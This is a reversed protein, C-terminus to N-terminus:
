GFNVLRNHAAACALAPPCAGAPMRLCLAAVHGAEATKATLRDVCDGEQPDTSTHFKEKEREVGGLHDGLRASRSAQARVFREFQGVVRGPLRCEEVAQDSSVHLGRVDAVVPSDMM